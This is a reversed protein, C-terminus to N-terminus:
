FTWIPEIANPVPTVCEPFYKAIQSLLVVELLRFRFSFLFNKSLLIFSLATM